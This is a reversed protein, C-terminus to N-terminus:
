IEGNVGEACRGREVGSYGRGMVGIDGRWERDECNYKREVDIDGRRVYIGNGSGIEVILDGRWVEVGEGQIYGREM